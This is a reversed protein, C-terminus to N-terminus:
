SCRPTELAQRLRAEFEPARALVGTQRLPPAWISGPFHPDDAQRPVIHWHVHPTMNGLSALNVKAPNLIRRLAEETRFVLEMCARQEAPAFDTMEALHREAVVRVLCPHLPEDEALVVRWAPTRLLVVGGDGACLPCTKNM